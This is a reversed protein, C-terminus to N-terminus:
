NNSRQSFGKQGFDLLDYTVVGTDSVHSKQAILEDIQSSIQHKATDNLQLASQSLQAKM